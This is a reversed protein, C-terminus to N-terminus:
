RADGQGLQRHERQGPAARDLRHPDTSVFRHDGRARTRHPHRVCVHQRVVSEQQAFLDFQPTWDRASGYLKSFEAGFSESAVVVVNLKGLGQSRAAFKRDLKGENLHTFQGGGQALQPVLVRLNADRPRTAYYAHYDIESTRLARFFSSVGNAVLQNAVRNRSFGLTDTSFAAVAVALAAAYAVFVKSRDIIRTSAGNGALLARRLVFAVMAACLAVGIAVPVLPYAAQIDGVVETPYMLYDVAVLNFRSDFEEFFFYEIAAVFIFTYLWAFAGALLVVRAAVSRLARDPVLWLFAAFPALLYLSEIADAILGTVVIWGLSQLGM